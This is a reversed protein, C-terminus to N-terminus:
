APPFAAARWFHVPLVESSGSRSARVATRLNAADILQRVYGQLFNSKM